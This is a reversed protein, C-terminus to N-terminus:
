FTHELAVFALSEHGSAVVGSSLKRYETGLRAFSKEAVQLSLQARVGAQHTRAGVVEALAEIRRYDLVISGTATPSLRRSYALAGGIQRNNTVALGTALPGLELADRIQTRFLSLAISSRSGLLAGTASVSNTISIRPTIISLPSALSAPLGQQRMVDQVQRARDIPNPFRTTLIADLLGAVNDTAPLGFLALPATDIDRSGQIGLALLPSRYAFNLHWSTGFFRREADADFTTRESPRWSFQGGYISKTDDDPSFNNREAGGRVGVRVEDNLAVNLLVRAVDITLRTAEGQYRTDSRDVEVRWGFPRPDQELSATHHQLYARGVSASLASASGNENTKINDSRARVHLGERPEYDIYPSLRYQTSTVTNATSTTSPVDGFPDASTQLARVAGEIYFLRDVAMLRALLDGQPLVADDLTGQTYNVSDVALSGRVHLAPTDGRIVVRPRIGVVVDGDTNTGGLTTNDTAIVRTGISPEIFWRQALATDAGGVLLTAAVVLPRLALLTPECPASRAGCGSLSSPPKPAMTGM